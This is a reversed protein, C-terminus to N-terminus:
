FLTLLGKVRPLNMADDLIIINKMKDFLSYIIVRM